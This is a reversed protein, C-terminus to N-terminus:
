AGCRAQCAQKGHTWPQGPAHATGDLVAVSRRATCGDVGPASRHDAGLRGVPGQARVQRTALHYVALLTHTKGGGFATQLQIVPRAAEAKNLRQAVQILLLGMGETIFAHRFFAAHESVGKTAKGNRHVAAMDAPLESQQFAHRRSCGSASLPSEGFTEPRATMGEFGPFKPEPTAAEGSASEIATWSTALENYADRTRGLRPARVLHLPPYALQRAAAEAKGKVASFLRGASSM